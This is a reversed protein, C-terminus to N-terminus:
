HLWSPVTLIVVVVDLPRPARLYALELVPRLLRDFPTVLAFPYWLQAVSKSLRGLYEGCLGYLVALIVLVRLAVLVVGFVGGCRVWHLPDVLYQEVSRSKVLM